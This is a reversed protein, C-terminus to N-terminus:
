LWYGSVDVVYGTQTGTATGFGLYTKGTGDLPITFSASLNLTPLASPINLNVANPATGGTWFRLNGGGTAGVNTLVGVVGKAGAPIGNAGAIQLQATSSNGIVPTAGQAILLANTGGINTTAAVRVTAALLNINAPPPTPSSLNVWTGPTGGTTCYFLQGNSAVYLEGALHTGTTPASTGSDAPVLYLPATTGRGTLGYGRASMGYIGTNINAPFQLAAPTGSPLSTTGETAGIIGFKGSSPLRPNDGSANPIATFGWFQDGSDLFVASATEPKNFQIAVAAGAIGAMAVAMKKIMRRRSSKLGKEETEQFTAKERKLETIENRLKAVEEQLELLIKGEYFQSM